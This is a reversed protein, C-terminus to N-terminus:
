MSCFIDSSPVSFSVIELATELALPALLYVGSWWNRVQISARGSDNAYSLTVQGSRALNRASKPTRERWKRTGNAVASVLVREGPGGDDEVAQCRTM